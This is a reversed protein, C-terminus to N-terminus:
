VNHYIYPTAPSMQSCPSTKTLRDSVHFFQFNTRGLIYVVSDTLCIETSISFRSKLVIRQAYKMNMLETTGFIMNSYGNSM